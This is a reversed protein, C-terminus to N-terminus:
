TASDPRERPGEERKKVVLNHFGSDGLLNRVNAAFANLLFLPIGKSGYEDTHFSGETKTEYVVKGERRGYVQWLVSM